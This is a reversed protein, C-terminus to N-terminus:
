TPRFSYRDATDTRALHVLLAHLEIMAPKCTPVSSLPFVLITSVGAELMANPIPLAAPLLIQASTSSKVNNTSASLHLIVPSEEVTFLISQSRSPSVNATPACNVLSAHPLATMQVSSLRSVCVPLVSRRPSVPTVSSEVTEPILVLLPTPAVEGPASILSPVDPM